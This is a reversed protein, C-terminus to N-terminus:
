NTWGTQVQTKPAEDKKEEEKMETDSPTAPAADKGEGEGGAEGGSAAPPQKEPSAEGEKKAAPPEVEMPVEEEVEKTEVLNASQVLFVGHLNVRSNNFFFREM